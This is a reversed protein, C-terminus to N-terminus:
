YPTKLGKIKELTAKPIINKYQLVWPTKFVCLGFTKVFYYLYKVNKFGYKKLNHYYLKGTKLLPRKHYVLYYFTTNKLQKRFRFYNNGQKERSVKDVRHNVAIDTTFLIDYGKNIVEISVCAEEGYIDIWVPFGNTAKYVENKIAFGCGVFESCLYTEPTAIVNLAEQDSQFIGRIEKFAIVGVNSNNEFVQKVRNIFDAHLPHADDDFGIFIAGKAKKYLISRAKSAGISKDVGEWYVWPFSNKLVESNDTCGDLFVRIEHKSKDIYSELILLTKQLDKKRNKSVILLSAEM